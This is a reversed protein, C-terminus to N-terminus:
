SGLWRKVNEVLMQDLQEDTMGAERLRPVVGDFAYTSKWNPAMQEVLGGPFWDFDACADTSLFMRDAYGRELLAMLTPDRKDDPLFVETGYRDMGIFPGRGLLEEIYDLDDTDGTHAVQVTGPDVGEEDLVDMIELGRRTAPHSHVMMSRGTQKSARACARLVKEVDDTLGPEDVACKLFAAKIDTGQVGEEIDHVFVEAMHDEDRNRFYQPVETYTYIGTCPVVQLGTEDAVRKMFRIDREHNMCSPDCITTVGQDMLARAVGKARHFSDEDDYLHPFQQGVPESRMKLHEHVLTTGLRDLEVPGGVTAITAM